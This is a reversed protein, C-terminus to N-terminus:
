QVNNAIDLCSAPRHPISCSGALLWTLEKKGMSVAAALLLHRLFRCLVISLGSLLQAHARQQGGDVGDM